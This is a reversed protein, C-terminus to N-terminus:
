NMSSKYKRYENWLEEKLVPDTEIEAAEKLQRAVIDDDGVNGGNMKEFRPIDPKEVGPGAGPEYRSPMTQGQSGSALTRQGTMESGTGARVNSNSAYSGAGDQGSGGTWDDGPQVAVRHGQLKDQEKKIRGDFETIGKAFQSELMKMKDIKSVERQPLTNRYKESMDATNSKATRDQDEEFYICEVGHQNGDGGLKRVSECGEYVQRKLDAVFGAYDHLEGKSAKGEKSMNKFVTYKEQWAQNAAKLNEIEETLRPNAVAGTDAISFDVFIGFACIIVLFYLFRIVKM